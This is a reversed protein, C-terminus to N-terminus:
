REYRAAQQADARASSGPRPRETATSPQALREKADKRSQMLILSRQRWLRPVPNLHYAPGEAAALDAEDVPQTYCLHRQGAISAAWKHGM